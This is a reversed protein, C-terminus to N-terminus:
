PATDGVVALRWAVDYRAHVFVWTSGWGLGRVRQGPVVHQRDDCPITSVPGRGDDDAALVVRIPAPGYCRAYISATDPPWRLHTDKTLGYDGRGTTEDILEDSGVGELPAPEALQGIQTEPAGPVGVPEYDLRGGPSAPLVAAQVPGRPAPMDITGLGDDLQVVGAGAGSATWKVAEAGPAALLLVSNRLGYNGFNVGLVGRYSPPPAPADHITWLPPIRRGDVRRWRTAQDAPTVGVVLRRDAGLDAEFMVVVFQDFSVLQAVYWIVQKPPPLERGTKPDTRWRAVAGDLVKQSVAGDRHDPWPLAWSPVHRRLPEATQRGVVGGVLLSAVLAVVVAAATAGVQLARRRAHRRHVAALRGVPQEPQAGVLDAMAARLAQEDLGPVDSV